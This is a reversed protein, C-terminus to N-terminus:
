WFRGRHELPVRLVVDTGHGNSSVELRGGLKKARHRMSALGNGEPTGAVDFGRGNDDMRLVLWGRDTQMDVRVRSCRAHRVMNNIGEKFVLFVERRLDAGVKVGRGPEPARFELEINGAELINEAFSRMRLTLDSLQDRRPNVAWVIDSM